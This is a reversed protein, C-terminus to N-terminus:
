LQAVSKSVFNVYVAKSSGELKLGNMRKRLVGYLVNQVHMYLEYYFSQGINAAAMLSVIVDTFAKDDHATGAAFGLPVLFTTYHYVKDRALGAADYDKFLERIDEVAAYADGYRKNQVASTLAPLARGLVADVNEMIKLSM